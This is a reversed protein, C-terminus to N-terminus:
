HARRVSPQVSAPAGTQQASAAPAAAAQSRVRAARSAAQLGTAEAAAQGPQHHRGLGQGQTRQDAAQRGAYAQERCAQWSADAQRGSAARGAQLDLQRLSTSMALAEPSLLTDKCAEPGPKSAHRATNTINGLAKRATKPLTSKGSALKGAAHVLQNEEDHPQSYVQM